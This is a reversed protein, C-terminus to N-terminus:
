QKFRKEIEGRYFPMLKVISDITAQQDKKGSMAVVFVVLWSEYILYYIRFKGIKKERFFEYGLPKGTFPDAKLQELVKDVRVSVSKDLKCYDKDFEESMLVEFM